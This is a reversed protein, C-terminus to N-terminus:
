PACGPRQQAAHSNLISQREREAAKMDLGFHRALLQEASEMVPWYAQTHATQSTCIVMGSDHLWEIFAEIAQAESQVAQMKALEPHQNADVAM